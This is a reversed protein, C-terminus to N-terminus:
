KLQRWLRRAAKKYEAWLERAHQNDPNIPLHKRSADLIARCWRLIAVRSAAPALGATQIPVASLLRICNTGKQCRLPNAPLGWVAPFGTIALLEKRRFDSTPSAIAIQGPVAGVIFNNEAPVLTALQAGASLSVVPGCISVAYEKSDTEGGLYSFAPFSPWEQLGETLEYTKSIGGCFVTHLGTSDWGNVMHGGDVGGTAVIGDIMVQTESDAMGRIAIRPPHGLLWSSRTIRIGGSLVIDVDHVPRLVNYIGVHDEHAVGATPRVQTFLVWGDPIGNGRIAPLPGACGADALSARAALENDETCLVAHEEGLALRPTTIQASITGAPCRALVYIDRGSLTWRTDSTEDSIWQAGNRLLEGLDPPFIDGFWEDQCANWTQQGDPGTVEITEPLEAARPPLIALNWKNRRSAVLHLSMSLSRARSASMDVARLKLRARGTQPTRVSPKYRPVGQRPGRAEPVKSKPEEARPSGAVTLGASLSELECKALPSMQLLLEGGHAVDSLPLEEPLPTSLASANGNSSLCSDELTITTEAMTSNASGNDHDDAKDNSEAQLLAVFRSADPVLNSVSSDPLDKVAASSDLEDASLPSLQGALPTPHVIPNAGADQGPMDFEEADALAAGRNEIGTERNLDPSSESYEQPTVLGYENAMAPSFSVASQPHDVNADAILFELIEAESIGNGVRQPEAHHHETGPLEPDPPLPAPATAARGGALVKLNPKPACSDGATLECAIDGAVLPFEGPESARSLELNGEIEFIYDVNQQEGRPETDKCLNQSISPGLIPIAFNHVPNPPAEAPQAKLANSRPLPEDNRYDRASQKQVETPPARRQRRAVRTAWAAVALAAAALALAIFWPDRM